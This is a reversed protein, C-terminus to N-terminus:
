GLTRGLFFGRRLRRLRFGLLLRFLQITERLRAPIAVRIPEPVREGFVIIDYLVRRLPELIRDVIQLPEDLALVYGQLRVANQAICVRAYISKHLREFAIAKYHLM